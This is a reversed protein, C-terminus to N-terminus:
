FDVTIRCSASGDRCGATECRVTAAAPRGLAERVLASWMAADVTGAEPHAAVLPRLPCTPTDLIARDNTVEVVSLQFGLDGIAARLRELGASRELGSVRALVGAYAAGADQLERDPKGEILLGVLDELRRPPFAIAEFEPAVSYIKAPRGAGPGTRGSRREFSSELLGAAVLRELRARAVNRHVGEASAVDDATVAAEQARVYLLTARLEPTGVADLRPDTM